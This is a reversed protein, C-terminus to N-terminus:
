KKEGEKLEKSLSSLAKILDSLSSIELTFVEDQITGYEGRDPNLFIKLISISGSKNIFVEIGEQVHFETATHALSEKM